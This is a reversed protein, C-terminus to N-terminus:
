FQKIFVIQQFIIFCVRALKLLGNLVPTVL